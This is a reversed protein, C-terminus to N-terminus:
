THPFCAKATIQVTKKFFGANIVYDANTIIQYVGSTQCNVTEDFTVFTPQATPGHYVNYFYTKATGTGTNTYDYCTSGTYGSNRAVVMCRATAEAASTLQQASYMLLSMHVIGFIVLIVLPLVLALEVASSGDENLRWLRHKRTM